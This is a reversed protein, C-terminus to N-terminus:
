RARDFDAVARKPAVSRWAIELIERMVKRTVTRLRILVAPYNAYHDTIYFTAPDDNMRKQREEFGVRIALTEGDEKLRAMFKGFVKLSPTGYSTSEEMGPYELAMQCVADYSVGGRKSAKTKTQTKLPAPALSKPAVNRWATQLAPQLVRASAARLKVNTAGKLGWGGKVAMFVKPATDVFAQQQERTLKVMGWGGDPYGLTAFIKGRVRFDPHGMHGQEVAEPLGLALRRFADVTLPM